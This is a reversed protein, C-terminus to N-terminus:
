IPGTACIRFSFYNDIKIKFTWMKSSCWTRPPVQRTYNRGCFRSSGLSLYSRVKLFCAFRIWIIGAVKGGTGPLSQLDVKKMLNTWHEVLVSFDQFVIEHALADYEEWFHSLHSADCKKDGIQLNTLHLWKYNLNTLHLWTYNLNTM